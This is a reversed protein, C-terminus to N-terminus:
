NPSSARCKRRRHRSDGSQLPCPTEPRFPRCMRGQTTGGPRFVGLQPFPRRPIALACSRCTSGESVNRTTFFRQILVRTIRHLCVEAPASLGLEGGTFSILLISVVPFMQLTQIIWLHSGAVNQPEDDFNRPLLMRPRGKVTAPVCRVARQLPLTKSELM